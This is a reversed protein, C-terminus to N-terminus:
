SRKMWNNRIRKPKRSACYTPVLIAELDDPATEPLVARALWALDLDIPHSFDFGVKGTETLLVEGAPQLAKRLRSLTGRLTVAANKPSSEPWLLAMLAERSHMGKEIILYILLALAKRTPFSLTQGEFTIEPSGLFRMTLNAM